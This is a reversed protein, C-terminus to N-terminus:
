NIQELLKRDHLIKKIEYVPIKTCEPNATKFATANFVYSEYLCSLTSYKMAVYENFEPSNCRIIEDSQARIIAENEASGAYLRPKYNPMNPAEKTKCGGLFTIIFFAVVYFKSGMRASGSLESRQKYSGQIASGQNGGFGGFARFMGSGIPKPKEEITTEEESVIADEAVLDLSFTKSGLPQLLLSSELNTKKKEEDALTSDPVILNMEIQPKIVERPSVHPSGFLDELASTDKKERALAVAKQIEKSKEKKEQADQYEDIKDAILKVFNIITPLNKLFLTLFSFIASLWGM